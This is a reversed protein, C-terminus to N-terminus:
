RAGGRRVFSVLSCKRLASHGAMLSGVIALGAGSLSFTLDNRRPTAPRVDAVSVRIM